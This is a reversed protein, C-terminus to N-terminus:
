LTVSLQNNEILLKLKKQDKVILNRDYELAYKTLSELVLSTTLADSYWYALQQVSSSFLVDSKWYIQFNKTRDNKKFCGSSDSAKMHDLLYQVSAVITDSYANKLGIIEAYKDGINLLATLKLATALIKKDNSKIIEPNEADYGYSNNELLQRLLLPLASDINPDQLGGDRVARSLAYPFWLSEPYYLCTKNWINETIVTSILELSEKYGAITQIGALAIAFLVNCNVVLDINNVGLPLVGSGPSSFVKLNEDKFWTLFAGTNKPLHKNHSDTKIRNLDRYNSFVKFNESSIFAEKNNYEKQFKMQLALALSTDDADNPINFIAKSGYKNEKADYVKDVWEQIIESEHFSNFGFRQALKNVSKRFNVIWLPINVPSIYNYECKKNYNSIWFNYESGNKFKDSGDLANELMKDIFRKDESLTGEDFLFLSYATSVTTFHNYDLAVFFPQIRKLGSEQLFSVFSPWSGSIHNQTIIYNGFYSRTKSLIKSFLDKDDKVNFNGSSILYKESPCFQTAKLYNLAGSIANKLAKNEIRSNNKLSHDTNELSM